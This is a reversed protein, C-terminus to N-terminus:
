IFNIIEFKNQKSVHAVIMIDMLLYHIHIILHTKTSQISHSQTSGM